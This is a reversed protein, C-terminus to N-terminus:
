ARMPESRDRIAQEKAEKLLKVTDEPDFWVYVTKGVRSPPSTAECELVLYPGPIIKFTGDFHKRPRVNM